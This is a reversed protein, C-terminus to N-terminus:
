ASAVNIAATDLLINITLSLLVFQVIVFLEM